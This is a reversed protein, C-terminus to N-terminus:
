VVIGNAGRLGAGRAFPPAAGDLSEGEMHGASILLRVARVFRGQAEHTVALPAVPAIELQQEVIVLQLPIALLPARAPQGELLADPPEGPWHEGTAAVVGAGLIVRPQHHGVKDLVRRGGVRHAEVEVLALQRQAVAPWDRPGATRLRREDGPALRTEDTVLSCRRM